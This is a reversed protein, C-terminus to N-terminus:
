DALESDDISKTLHGSGYVLVHWRKLPRRIPPDDQKHYQVTRDLWSDWKAGWELLERDAKLQAIVKANDTHKPM